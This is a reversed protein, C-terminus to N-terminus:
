PAKAVILLRSPLFPSRVVRSGSFGARTLWAVYDAGSFCASNSTIRFFLAAADGAAEPPSAEGPSGDAVSGTESSVSWTRRRNVGDPGPCGPCAPVAEASSRTM